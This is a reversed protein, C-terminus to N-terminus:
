KEIIGKIEDRWIEYAKHNLHVHDVAFERLLQRNESIRSNLDIYSINNDSAYKKLKENLRDIESNVHKFNKLIDNSYTTSVIVPTIDRKKLNELISIYNKFIFDVPDKSGCIDNFGVLIFCYKPNLRYVEYIRKKLNYATDGGIGLNVINIDPFLNEWRGQETISDGFMVVDTKHQQNATIASSVFLCVLFSISFIIILRM